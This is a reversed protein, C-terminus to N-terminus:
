ATSLLTALPEAVVPTRVTIKDACTVVANTLPFVMVQVCGLTAARASEALSNEPKAVVAVTSLTADAGPVLVAGDDPAVVVVACADSSNIPPM